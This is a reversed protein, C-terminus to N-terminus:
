GTGSDTTYVLDGVHVPTRQQTYTFQSDGISVETRCCGTYEEEVAQPDKLYRALEKVLKKRSTFVVESCGVTVVYGNLVPKITIERANNMNTNM